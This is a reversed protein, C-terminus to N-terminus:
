AEDEQDAEIMHCQAGCGSCALVTYLGDGNMGWEHKMFDSQWILVSGCFWCAIKPKEDPDGEPWKDTVITGTTNETM